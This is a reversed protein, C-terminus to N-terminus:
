RALPKRSVISTTKLSVDLGVLLAMKRGFGAAFTRTRSAPISNGWGAHASALDAWTSLARREHRIITDVAVFALKLQDSKM